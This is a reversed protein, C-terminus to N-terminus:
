QLRSMGAEALRSSASALSRRLDQNFAQKAADEFQTAMVVLDLADLEDAFWRPRPGPFPWKLRFGNGCVDDCFRGVYGGVIGHQEASGATAHALEQLMEARDVLSQAVALLFAYRPPLPQPNLAVEDALGHGGGLTDFVEPQRAVIAAFALKWPEPQPGLAPQAFRAHQAAHGSVRLKELATRIVPDWPGPPVPHEPDERGHSAGIMTRVFSLLKAQGIVAPVPNGSNTNV